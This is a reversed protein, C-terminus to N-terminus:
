LREETLAGGRMVTVYRFGLSKLYEEGESLGFAIKRADHCDTSVTVRGSKESIRKLLFEDPYPSSLRGRAVAGYNLEFVVGTKLCAALYDAALDRYAASAFDVAVAGCKRILDFHALIDPRKAAAALVNDYYAQAFRMGDGGFAESVCEATIRESVDVGYLRGGNEIYHAAGIVYDYEERFALPAYLDEEAGLYVNIPLDRRSSRVDEIARIYQREGAVSASSDFSAYSHSSFGFDKIGAKCAASLMEEPSDKGDCLSCHNHLSSTIM